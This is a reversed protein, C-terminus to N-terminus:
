QPGYMGTNGVQAYRLGGTFGNWYDGDPRQLRPLWDIKDVNIRRLTAIEDKYMMMFNQSDQLLNQEAKMKATALLIIAEDFEEGLEHIDGDNVLKFPQKYYLCQIPFVASPLPYLQIKTYQPGSTTNGVPLVGVTTNASDSTITTLGVTNANKTIRDINSFLKVGSVSTGATINIIEYDPYGNVTGFCTVPIATDSASSSSITLKSPAKPQELSSDCGWMRYALPVNTLVDLVGARYFEQSPIYTLLLPYGYARHWFFSEHGVQIPLTYYEQSQVAYVATSSSKGDWVQDLTITTQSNVQSIRFYKGSGTIKIYQGVKIDNTYLTANPLTVSASNLTVTALAATPSAADAYGAVTNFSTERRLQKWRAYRAVTWLSTNVLNNAATTFQSGSQDRTARRLVESRLDSFTFAM